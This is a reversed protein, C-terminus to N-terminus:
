GPTEASVAATEQWPTLDRTLQIRSIRVDSRVAPPLGCSRGVDRWASEDESTPFGMGAPETLVRGSGDPAIWSEEEKTTIFSFGPQGSEAVYISTTSIQTRTYLYQGQSPAPSRRQSRASEAAGELARVADPSAGGGSPWFTFLVLAVGAAVM